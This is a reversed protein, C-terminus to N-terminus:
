VGPFVFVHGAGVAVGEGTGVSGGTAVGVGIAGVEITVTTSGVRTKCFSAGTIGIIGPSAYLGVGVGVKCGSTMM